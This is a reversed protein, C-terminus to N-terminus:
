KWKVVVSTALKLITNKSNTYVIFPLQKSFSDHGRSLKLAGLKSFLFLKSARGIRTVDRMRSTDPIPTSPDCVTGSEECSLDFTPLMRTVASPSLIVKFISPAGTTDLDCM